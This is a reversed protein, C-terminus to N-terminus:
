KLSDALFLTSLERSYTYFYSQGDPALILSYLIFGAPDPLPIEKWLTRKGTNVNLRYIRVLSSGGVNTGNGIYIVDRDQSWRILWDDKLFGKPVHTTGNLDYLMPSGDPGNALIFNQDPSIMHQAFQHGMLSAGEPTLPVPSGGDIRQIYLRLPRGPENGEFLVRSGDPFWAAASHNLADNTLTRKEGVGVPILVLQRPVKETCALIWQGDPSFAQASGSGVRIASSGDMKRVYIEFTNGEGGGEEMLLTQGDRSVDIGLSFDFWSADHERADTSAKGTIGWRVDDRTFLVQGHRSIDRITLPSTSRYVLREKGSSSLAYFSRIGGTKAGTFWVENTTPNWAVGRLTTYQSSSTRLKGHADIIRVWGTDDNRVPWEALALSKGDPAFRMYPVVAATSYILKGPPYELQDNGSRTRLIALQNDLPSVDVPGADDLIPRPTGGTLPVSALEDKGNSDMSILMERSSLVAVLDAGPPNLPLSDSSNEPALFVRNPDADWTASYFVSAGDHSFRAEHILGRRFTLQHLSFDQSKSHLWVSAGLISGIAVICLLATATILWRLRYRQDPVGATVSSIEAASELDFALDRASFFRQETNKELCRGVISFLAPPLRPQLVSLQPPDENLIANMTEVNTNRRFARKGSLMEYLVVGFSFIDTLHNVNEGRVQEPSMYGATGLIMGPETGDSITTSQLTGSSLSKALGFDLIKARGDKTIFINEPKLDRHVVGQAHAASLGRAVQAGYDIARRASLPGGALHHRLTRGELLESVVYPTGDQVGIDFLALINPHNLAAVARAELEFRRLRDRDGALAQPLVKVAVNRDLRTDRARYVEGMGGADLFATVEYPGLRVGPILRQEPPLETAATVAGEARSPMFNGASDHNRLLSLVEARVDEDDCQDALFRKRGEPSQELAADFLSKVKEWRESAPEM